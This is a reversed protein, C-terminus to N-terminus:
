KKRLIHTVSLTGLRYERVPDSVIFQQAYEFSKESFTCPYTTKRFNIPLDKALEAFENITLSANLSRLFREKEHQNTMSDLRENIEYFKANRCLDYIYLRGRPHLLDLMEILAVAPDPFHHFADKCIVASFANQMTHCHLNEVRFNIPTHGYRDEAINILELSADTATINACDGCRYIEYALDGTGCAVELIRSNPKISLRKVVDAAVLKTTLSRNDMRNAYSIAEFGEIVEAPELVRNKRSFVFSGVAPSELSVNLTNM